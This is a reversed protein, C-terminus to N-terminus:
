FYYTNVDPILTTEVHGVPTSSGQSQLVHLHQSDRCGCLKVFPASSVETKEHLMHADRNIRCSAFPSIELYTVRPM